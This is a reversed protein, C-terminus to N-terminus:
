KFIIIEKRGEQRGEKTGEQREKTHRKLGMGVAYLLEWALLQTLATAELRRYQLASDM